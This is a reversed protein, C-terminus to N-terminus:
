RLRYRRKAGQLPSGTSVDSDLRSMVRAAKKYLKAHTEGARSMNLPTSQYRQALSAFDQMYRQYQRNIKQKQGTIKQVELPYMM